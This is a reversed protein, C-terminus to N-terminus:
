GRDRETTVSSGNPLLVTQGAPKIHVGWTNVTIRKKPVRCIAADQQCNIVLWRPGPTMNAVVGNFIQIVDNSGYSALKHTEFINVRAGKLGDSFAISQNALDNTSLAVAAKITANPRVRDRIVNVPAATWTATLPNPSTTSIDENWTTRYITGSPLEISFLYLPKFLKGDKAADLGTGLTKAM